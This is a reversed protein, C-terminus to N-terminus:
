YEANLENLIADSVRFLQKQEVESGAPMDALAESIQALAQADQAAIGPAPAVQQMHQQPKSAQNQILPASEPLQKAKPEDAVAATFTLVSILSLIGLKRHSM